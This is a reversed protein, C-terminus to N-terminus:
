ILAIERPRCSAQCWTAAMQAPNELRAPLLRPYLTLRMSDTTFPWTGLALTHDDQWRLTLQTADPAHAWKDPDRLWRPISDPAADPGTLCIYLSLIDFFKIWRLAGDNMARLEQAIQPALRARRAREHAQLDEIDRTGSFTTYHLSVLTAVWPHIGELTQIGAEYLAVKAGTPYDIFDHPLGTAPNFTPAADAPRWATDHLAIAQVWLPGLRTPAWAHALMGSILAHQEQPICEFTQNHTTRILM